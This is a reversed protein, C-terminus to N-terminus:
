AELALCFWYLEHISFGENWYLTELFVRILYGSFVAEHVDSRLNQTLSSYSDVTRDISNTYIPIM